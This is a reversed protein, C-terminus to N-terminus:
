TKWIINSITNFLKHQITLLVIFPADCRLHWSFSFAPQVIM